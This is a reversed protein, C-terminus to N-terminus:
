LAHRREGSLGCAAIAASATLQSLEFTLVRSLLGRHRRLGSCRLGRVFPRLAHGRLLLACLALLDPKTLLLLRLSLGLSLLRQARLLLLLLLARRHSLLCVCLSLGGPLGRHLLALLGVRLPRLLDSRVGLSLLRRPLLHSLGRLRLLADPLLRLSQARRLLRAPLPGRRLLLRVLLRRLMLRTLLPRRRLGGVRLRLSVALTFVMVSVRGRDECATLRVRM